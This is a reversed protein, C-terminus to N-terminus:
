KAKRLLMLFPNEVPQTSKNRNQKAARRLLEIFPNIPRHSTRKPKTVKSKVVQPVQPKRQNKYTPKNLVKVPTIERKQTAIKQPKSSIILPGQSNKQSIKPRDAKPEEFVDLKVINEGKKFIASNNDIGIFKIGDVEENLNLVIYGRKNLKDKIKPTLRKPKLLVKKVKGTNIIGYLIFDPAPSSKQSSNKKNELISPDFLNKIGNIDAHLIFVQLILIMFVLIKKM